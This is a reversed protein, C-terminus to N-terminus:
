WLIEKINFFSNRLGRVLDVIFFGSLMWFLLSTVISLLILSGWFDLYKGLFSYFYFGVIGSYKFIEEKQSFFIGTLSSICCVLLVFSVIKVIKGKAIGYFKIVCLRDLGLFFLYLPLFFASYGLAFVLRFALHAGFIGILNHSSKNAPFSLFGLDKQDYSVLSLFILLSLAILILGLLASPIRSM